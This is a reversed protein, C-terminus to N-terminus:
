PRVPNRGGGCCVHHLGLFSVLESIIRYMISVYLMLTIDSLFAESLNRVQPGAPDDQCQGFKIWKKRDAVVRPVKKSIIKFQTVVQVYNKFLIM